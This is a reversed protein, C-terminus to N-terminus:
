EHPKNKPLPLLGGFPAAAKAAEKEAREAGESVTDAGNVPSMARMYSEPITGAFTIENEAMRWETFRLRGKGLEEWVDIGGAELMQPRTMVYVLVRGVVGDTSKNEESALKGQAYKVAEGADKSTSIFPTDVFPTDKYSSTKTVEEGTGPKTDKVEGTLEQEFLKQNDIYRSLAAMFQNEFKGGSQTFSTKKGELMGELRARLVPNGAQVHIGNALKERESKASKGVESEDERTFDTTEKWQDLVETVMQNARELYMKSVPNDGALKKAIKYTATSYTGEAQVESLSRQSEAEVTRGRTTEWNKSFHLGRYVAVAGLEDLPLKFAWFLKELFVKMEHMAAHTKSKRTESGDTEAAAKLLDYKEQTKLIWHEVNTKLKVDKIKAAEKRWMSLRKPVPVPDSAVMIVAADGVAEIWLTHTEEGAEFQEGNERGVEDAQLGEKGGVESSREEGGGEGPPPTNGSAMLQFAPAQKTEGGVHEEEAFVTPEPRVTKTEKLHM